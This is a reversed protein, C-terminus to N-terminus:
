VIKIKLWTFVEFIKQVKDYVGLKKAYEYLKITNKDNSYYYDRIAKNFLELDLKNKNKIIDCISRELDYVRVVNGFNTKTSSLGLEHVEEKVYYLNINNDNQLSGKYDRKVTVDYKIPIRDSYGHFYLATLNSFVASKSKSNIIFYKDSLENPLSYVGRSLRIIKNKDVLFGLFRRSIGAEEVDKTTLYPNSKFLNLLQKEKNM